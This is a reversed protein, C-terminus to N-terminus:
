PQAAPAVPPQVTVEVKPVGKFYKAAVRKTDELTVAEIQAKREEYNAYGLGILEDMAVAGAFAANSQNRIAESGLLKKKARILEEPTLGEAALKDIESTFEKTVQDVKKPDTGLYFVFSGPALGNFNGAGVFYALGLKERIRDFFRSGLDNSAENILELAPRDPDLVSVGPYGIMVVAQQKDREETVRVTESPPIPAPPTTLALEGKPLSALDMEVLKVVEEAKVDGFVAIVGNAGVAYAQHFARLAEPTLAAVSEASGLRPRGYAHSGFLKARTTDRAVAYVQHFARLAEPTLAAVSEASGLRPRGYAHSGFLKARTTDRAVATIQEQEAKIGALQSKKELDVEGEPFTPHLLVDSLLALGLALDPKMVEVSVLFSNYGSDSSISGGVSEIEEAVQAASRTTTGKLITSALLPTIGNDAATEALLGGRFAATISIIPLKANERVLLRLGNSLTFIKVESVAAPAQAEATATLSGIPNLSTVNLRDEQLYERAVRQLDAPTVRGIANLYDRSFDPNKALLWSSGLDSAKGRMTGLSKMQGALMARRAKDLEAETVGGTKIRDVLTLAEDEVAIRKDPECVATIIFVGDTQLSFVGADVEHALQLKERIQTNLISSRGAGLVAGLLDLAPIDPNSQGPVRWSLAVRSLETPFEEHRERRGIQEPESPVFIPDLAKRPEAKFVEMLQAHIKEADVDGVVVFTLNNPVYRAKYYDMVDQRTLQNYVDLYGIVPHQFPSKAFVTSMILKWGVRNPDDFGMAFERRIVEQEKAYEGEPLRSHMMADALIDVAESAGGAPVDIWYVTRDFSTYANIYGGQEQVQKAIEGGARKDTGKFLMHELIHSLGAGMWKGEHISGTGCWAQVSAVPASHDEEVILTLGNELTFVKAASKPLTPAAAVPLDVKPSTSPEEKVEKTPKCSVLMMFTLFGPLLQKM